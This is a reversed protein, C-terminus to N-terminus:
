TLWHTKKRYEKKSNEEKRTKGTKVRAQKQVRYGGAQGTQRGQGHAQRGSRVEQIRIQNGVVM